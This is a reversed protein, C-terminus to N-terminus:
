VWGILAGSMDATGNKRVSLRSGEPIAREIFMAPSIRNIVEATTSSSGWQGIVQESGAGGVAIDYTMDVGSLATGQGCVHFSVARYARTTSAIAQDFANDTLDGTTPASTATNVGITDAIQYGGWMGARGGYVLMIRPDYVDSAVAAQVRGRVSTGEPIHLPLFFQVDLGHYGVPINAVQVVESGAGGFAIDMLMSTNAGTTGITVDSSIWMGVCDNAAAATISQYGGKAHPTASATFNTPTVILSGRPWGVRPFGKPM